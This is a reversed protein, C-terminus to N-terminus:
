CPQFVGQKCLRLGDTGTLVNPHYAASGRGAYDGNLSRQPFIKWWKLQLVRWIIGGAAM